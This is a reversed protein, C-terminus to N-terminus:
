ASVTFGESARAVGIDMDWGELLVLDGSLAEILLTRDASSETPLPFVPPSPPLRLLSLFLSLTPADPLRAPIGDEDVDTELAEWEMETESEFEPLPVPVPDLERTSAVLKMLRMRERRISLEAVDRDFMEASEKGEFM